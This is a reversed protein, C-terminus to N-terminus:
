LQSKIVLSELPMTIIPLEVFYFEIVCTHSNLSLSFRAMHFLGSTCCLSYESQIPNKFTLHYFFPFFFPLFACILLMFRYSCDHFHQFCLLSWLEHLFFHKLFAFTSFMPRPLSSSPFCKTEKMELFFPLRRVPCFLLQSELQLPSFTMVTLHIRTDLNLHIICQTLAVKRM